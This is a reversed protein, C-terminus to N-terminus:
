SGEGSPACDLCLLFRTMIDLTRDTEEVTPTLALHGHAMGEAVYRTVAGGAARVGDIFTDASQRLDDYEDIIVLAPPLGSLDHGEVSAYRADASHKGLYLSYLYDLVPAPFRLLAPVDELSPWGPQELLATRHLSPYALVLSAPLREGEDRAELAAGVVLNAGASFGGLSVRDRDIHLEDAADFTWRVSAMVERHLSPYTVTTGNAVTYAPAIVTIGARAVLERAIWDSEPEDISGQIWGGGHVWVLAAGDEELESPSYIRLRLSGPGLPGDIALERTPVSPPQYSPDTQFSDRFRKALDPSAMFDALSLQSAWGFQRRYLPDLPAMACIEETSTSGLQIQAPRIPTSASGM